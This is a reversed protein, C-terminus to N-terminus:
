ERTKDVAHDLGLDNEEDEDTAFYDEGTRLNAFLNVLRELHNVRDKLIELLNLVGEM